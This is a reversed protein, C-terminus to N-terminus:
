AFGMLRDLCSRGETPADALPSDGSLLMRMTLPFMSLEWLMGTTLELPRRPDLQPKASRISKSWPDRLDKFTRIRVRRQAGTSPDSMTYNMWGYEVGPNHMADVDIEIHRTMAERMEESMPASAIRHMVIRRKVEKDNLTSIRDVARKATQAASRDEDTKAREAMRDAIGRLRQRERERWRQVETKTVRAMRAKVTQRFTPGPKIIQKPLTHEQVRSAIFEADRQGRKKLITQAKESAQAFLEKIVEQARTYGARVQSGDAKTRMVPVIRAIEAISQPEGLSSPHLGLKRQLIVGMDASHPVAKKRGGGGIEVTGEGLESVVAALQQQAHVKEMPDYGVGINEAPFMAAEDDFWESGAAGKQGALFSEMEQAWHLKGPRKSAEKITTKGSPKTTVVSRGKSDKGVVQEFEQVRGKLAYPRMPVDRKGKPKGQLHDHLHDMRLNWRAAVQEVTPKDIGLERATDARAAVYSQLLRMHRRPVGFGGAIEQAAHLRMYDRIYSVVRPTLPADLTEKAMKTGADVGYTQVARLVGEIGAMHLDARTESGERIAMGRIIRTAERQIKKEFAAVIHQRTTDDIGPEHRKETIRTGDPAERTTIVTKWPFVGNEVKWIPSGQKAKSGEFVPMKKGPTTFRPGQPKRRRRPAEAPVDAERRERAKREAARRERAELPVYRVAYVRDHKVEREEGTEVHVLTAWGPESEPNKIRYLHTASGAVKVPHASKPDIGDTWAVYGGSGNDYWEWHSPTRDYDGKLFQAETWEGPEEEHKAKAKTPHPQGPYWTAVIKGGRVKKWGGKKSKPMPIFGPPPRTPGKGKMLLFRLAKHLEDWDFNLAFKTEGGEPHKVRTFYDKADPKVEHGGGKHHKGAHEGATFHMEHKGAVSHIVSDQNYKKGLAKIEDAKAEHAMVLFSDESGEYHGVVETFAFGGKKLDARLKEHRKKQAAESMDPELKPNKGASVVGYTGHLLIWDLERKTLPTEGGEGEARRAVKAQLKEVFRGVARRRSKHDRRWPIKHQPDEYLGGRPGVYPGAKRIAKAVKSKGGVERIADRHIAQRIIAGHETSLAHSVDAGSAHKAEESVALWSAPVRLELTVRGFGESSGPKAVYLGREVGAGPKFTARDGAAHRRAALTWPKTQPIVGDRLIRDAHERTTSHHVTVMPGGQPVSKPAWSRVEAALVDARESAGGGLPMVREGMREFRAATKEVGLRTVAQALADMVDDGLRKKPPPTKAEKWPITHKADAWKGGKPGIFPGAKILKRPVTLRPSEHAARSSENSKRIPRTMPSQNKLWAHFRKMTMQTISGIFREGRDDYHRLYARKAQKVTNFGLLVKHEDFRRFDANSRQNVVFVRDSDESPGVFVDLEDGDAGKVGRIYGYPMEMKTSGAEGTKHDRWQRHSGKRNEISIPIGQFTTRYHLKKYQGNGHRLAKTLDDITIIKTM